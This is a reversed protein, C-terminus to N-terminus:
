RFVANGNWAGFFGPQTMQYTSGGGWPDRIMVNGGQVGDVVVFHNAGSGRMQAIWPRGLATLPGFAGPGVYGGKWGPGIEAALFEPGIGKPGLAPLLTAQPVGAAMEACAAGCAVPTLQAVAGGPTEAITQWGPFGAAEAASSETQAVQAEM